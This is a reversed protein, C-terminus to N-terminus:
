QIAKRFHKELQCFVFDFKNQAAMLILYCSYTHSNLHGTTVFHLIFTICFARILAKRMVKTKCKTGVQRLSAFVQNILPQKICSQSIAFLTSTHDSPKILLVRIVSYVSTAKKVWEM